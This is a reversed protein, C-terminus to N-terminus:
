RYAINEYNVKKFSLFVLFMYISFTPVLILAADSFTAIFYLVCGLTAAQRVPEADSKLLRFNMLINSFFFLFPIIAVVGVYQAVTMYPIEYSQSLPLTSILDSDYIDRLYDARGGLSASFIFSTDKELLGLIFALVAIFFAMASLGFILKKVSLARGILFYEMLLYAALIIWCTRSLTLLVCLVLLWFFLRRPEIKRYLPMLMLMCVGFINGNNYTSMLKSLDGRDNMKAALGRVAGYTTTVGPIEFFSGVAYKYFFLFLGYVIVFRISMRLTVLMKEVHWDNVVSFFLFFFVPVVMLSILAGAFVGFSEIGNFTVAVIFLFWFPVLLVLYLGASGFGAWRLRLMFSAIFFPLAAAIVLYMTNLPVGALFFGSKPLAVMFFVLLVSYAALIRNM